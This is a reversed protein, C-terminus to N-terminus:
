ITGKIEDFFNLANLIAQDMNFYKYNALRGVFHVDRTVTEKSALRKYREYLEINEENPVPYYPDGHDTTYEKVITSYESEQQLFHKYEVIRTFEVDPSPYNVVSNSQYHTNNPTMVTEKEFRISRYELKPYGENAFYHDIPGTFITTEFQQLQQLIKYEHEDCGLRVEINANDLIREFLYTYGRKPLAQYTDTFYRDEYDKRVPIRELVSRDLEEPYKDWQKKTYHHFIKDYLKEGVRNIAAEKGNQPTDYVNANEQLWDEMQKSDDIKADLLLNVTDINVPIPVLKGDVSGVVSHEYKIWDSFRNVYDWVTENNTHFLHAGYKNILIGNEDVYDYCNGGIHDRKDIILVKKGISALREALVAGSLGCGIILVNM